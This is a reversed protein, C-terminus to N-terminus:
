RAVSGPMVGASAWRAGAKRHSTVDNYSYLGGGAKEAANGTFSSDVFTLKKYKNKIIGYVGGGCNGAMNRAFSCSRSETISDENYLAGGNYDAKNDTFTCQNMDLESYWYVYM